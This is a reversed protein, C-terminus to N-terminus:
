RVMLTLGAVSAANLGLAIKDTKSLRGRKGAVYAASGAATIGLNQPALESTLWAAFFSPISLPNAGVAPRLANATLGAGIASARLFRRSGNTRHERDRM